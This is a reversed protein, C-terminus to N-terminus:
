LGIIYNAFEIMPTALRGAGLSIAKEGPDEHSRPQTAIASSISPM